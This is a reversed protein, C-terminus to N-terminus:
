RVGVFVDVEGEEMGNSRSGYIEFDTDFKRDIDSVWIREWTQYVIGDSLKGQATFVAYRATAITKGVMGEPISDLNAVPHGLMATYPKTHDKEYDTYLCYLDDSTKDVIRSSIDEKFFRDWLAPIDHMAQGNENTTRVTIGVVHFAEMTKESMRSETFHNFVKM